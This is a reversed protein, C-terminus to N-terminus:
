INNSHSLHCCLPLRVFHHRGHFHTHPLSTSNFEEMCFFNCKSVNMLTQQINVSVLCPIHVCHSPSHHREPTAFAIYFVLRTRSPWACGDCLSIFLTKILKEAHILLNSGPFHTHHQINAEICQFYHHWHQFLLHTGCIIM